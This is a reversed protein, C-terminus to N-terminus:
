PKAELVKPPRKLPVLNPPETCRWGFRWLARALDHAVDHVWEEDKQWDAAHIMEHIQSDLRKVGRQRARIFIRKGRDDPHECLGDEKTGLRVEEGKRKGQKYRRIVFGMRRPVIVIDWCKGLIKIRV